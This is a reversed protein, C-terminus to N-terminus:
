KIKVFIGKGMSFLMKKGSKVFLGPVFYKGKLYPKIIYYIHHKGEPLYPIKVIIKNLENKVSYNLDPSIDVLHYRYNERVIFRCGAPLFDTLTLNYFKQKSKLTIEVLIDDGCKFTKGTGKPKSYYNQKDEYYKLYYYKKKLKLYRNKKKPKIEPSIVPFIFEQSGSEFPSAWYSSIKVSRATLPKFLLFLNEINQKKITVLKTTKSKFKGNLIDFVFRIKVPYTQHNFITASIFTEDKKTLFGPVFYDIYVQKESFHELMERGAKSDRTFGQFITVWQSMIDPYSFKLVNFEEQQTPILEYKLASYKLYQSYMFDWSKFRKIKKRIKRTKKSYTQNCTIVYNDRVPYWLKFFDYIHHNYLEMYNYNLISLIVDANIEHGWINFTQFELKNNQSSPSYTNSIKAEIKLMKTILPVNLNLTRTYNKNKYIYTVNLYVNPSYKEYIPFDFILFNKEVSVIQSTFIKEREISINCWINKHPFLILVKAIDSYSYEKKDPIIKINKIKGKIKLGYTYSIIYFFTSSAVIRGTSSKIKLVAKYYGDQTLNVEERGSLNKNLFISKRFVVDRPANKDIKKLKYIILESKDIRAYINLPEINYELIVPKGIEYLNKASVIKIKYDSNLVKIKIYDGEVIGNNSRCKLILKLEYNFKKNLFEPEFKFYVEGKKIKKKLVKYLKYKDEGIKRGWIECRAIGYHLKTGDSNYINAELKIKENHFYISKESRIKFIYLSPTDKLIIFNCTDSQEGWLAVVKYVGEKFREDIIQEFRYIGSEPVSIKKRLVINNRSDYIIIRITAAAPPAYESFEYNRLIVTFRLFEKLRYYEREPIIKIFNKYKITEKVPNFNFIDYSNSYNAILKQRVYLELQYFYNKKQKIKTDNLFLKFKKYPMGTEPNVAWLLLNNEYQKTIIKIKTILCLKFIEKFKGKIHILYGGEKLKKLKIYKHKKDILGTYSYISKLKHSDIKKYLITEKIYSDPIKYIKIFVNKFEAPNLYIRNEKDPFFKIIEGIKLIEANLSFVSLVWLILISFKRLRM